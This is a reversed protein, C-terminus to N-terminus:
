DRRVGFSLLTGADVGLAAAIRKMTRVTTRDPNREIRSIQSQPVRLRDALQKQTLGSQKRATAIWSGAIELAVNGADVWQTTKDELKAALERAEGARLLREYEEIPLLVHTTRNGHMVYAPSRRVVATARDRRVRGPRHAKTLTKAKVTPM